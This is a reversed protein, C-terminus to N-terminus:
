QKRQGFLTYCQGDHFILMQGEIFVKSPASGSASEHLTRIYEGEGYHSESAGLDPAKGLYSIPLVAFTDGSPATYTTAPMLMGKDCLVEAATEDVTVTEKKTRNYTYTARAEPDISAFDIEPLQDDVRPAMLQAHDMSRFFEPRARQFECNRVTLGELTEDVQFRGYQGQKGHESPKAVGESDRKDTEENDNIAICNTLEVKHGSAIEEYIRYSYTGSGNQTSTMGTCNTLIIDGSNHNQDFGKAKNMVAMCRTLYVNMAGQNSGCKFGNGNGDDAITNEDLFGNKYAICHDLIITMNDGFDGEKKYFVDWGDDSNLYARCGFFYNGTGVSLKPAFGDADGQDEDCNLYSDCNIVYNYAALNKMQLGTDGNRYFNCANIINDHAQGVANAIDASTGGTPKTREILLGNDSANTIDIHYFYWYSSTLRLGQYPNDSHGHQPHDCHIIARGNLCVMANYRDHMGNRDDINLRATPHYEGPALYITTGPDVARDIALQLSQLPTSATLGDNADDGDPAVYIAVAGEGCYLYRDSLQTFDQTIDFDHITEQPNDPNDPSSPTGGGDGSGGSGSDLAEESDALLISYVYMAGNFTLAVEGDAAVESRGTVHTKAASTSPLESLLNQATITRTTGDKSTAYELQIWQGAHCDPLYVISGEGLWLCSSSLFLNRGDGNTSGDAITFLLGHTISLEVDSATLPAHDLSGLFQYRLQSSKTVSNWQADATINAVDADPMNDFTWRTVDTEAQAMSTLCLVALSLFLSRM